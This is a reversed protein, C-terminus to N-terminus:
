VVSKRDTGRVILRTDFKFIESLLIGFNYKTIRNYSVVNIIGNIKKQFLQMSVDVFTEILIPTFYVDDFLVIKEKKRLGNIIFDSFSTRYRTGWGFFNTRLILAQDNYKLVEADGLEKSKGYINLPSTKHIESVFSDKGDYLHDTSIHIFYIDLKRAVKALIGPVKSNINYAKLPNLECEEINTMGATNIFIDPKIRKLAFEVDYENNLNLNLVNVGELAILKTNLALYIDYSNRLHIAWNLALLGSGGTFLIKKKM